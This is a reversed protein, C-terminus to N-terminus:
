PTALTAAEHDIATGCEPCVGSVNGTLDYGCARCRNPDIAVRRVVTFGFAIASGIMMLAGWFLMDNSLIGKLSITYNPNLLWGVLCLWAVALHAHSLMRRARTRFLSAIMLTIWLVPGLSLGTFSGVWARRYPDFKAMGGILWPPEFPPTSPLGEM